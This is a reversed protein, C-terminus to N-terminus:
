YEDQVPKNNRKCKQGLDLAHYNQMQDVLTYHDVDNNASRATNSRTLTPPPASVPATSSSASPYKPMELDSTTLGNEPDNQQSSKPKSFHGVHKDQAPTQNKPPPRSRIIALLRLSFKYHKGLV